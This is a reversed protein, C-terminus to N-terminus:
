NLISSIRHEIKTKYSRIKIIQQQHMFDPTHYFASYHPRFQNYIKISNEILLKMVQINKVNNFEIFEQKLIGNVREAIANEYPDYVQTMSCQINNNKLKQQYEHCCYQLGRDSHHILNRQPYLRNKVAMELAAVAGKASLSNSLNYGLIKKSYADTILALYMPNDRKGLYTIDSVWVQEPQKLEISSIINKHKRFHHHSDTTVHYQRKPKILLHNARLITFFKDRGVKLALLEARLLHYLKRGGIRPMQNRIKVM